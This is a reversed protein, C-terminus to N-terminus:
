SNSWKVMNPDCNPRACPISNYNDCRKAVTTLCNGCSSENTQSQLSVSETWSNFNLRRTRTFSIKSATIWYFQKFDSFRFFIVGNCNVLARNTRRSNICNWKGIVLLGTFWFQKFNQFLFNAYLFHACSPESTLCVVIKFKEWNCFGNVNRAKPGTDGNSM